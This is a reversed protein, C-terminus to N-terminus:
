CPLFSSSEPGEEVMERLAQDLTTWTVSPLIGVLQARPQEDNVRPHKPDPGLLERFIGDVVALQKVGDQGPNIILLCISKKKKRRGLGNIEDM